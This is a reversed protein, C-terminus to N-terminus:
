FRRTAGLGQMALLALAFVVGGALAAWGLEGWAYQSTSFLGLYTQVYTFTPVTRGQLDMVPCTAGLCFFQSTAIARLLHTTPVAYYLGRWFAPIPTAPPM